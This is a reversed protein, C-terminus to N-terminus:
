RVKEFWVGAGPVLFGSVAGDEDREFRLEVLPFVTRFVDPEWPRIDFAEPGPYSLLVRGGELRLSYVVELEQSYYSGSFAALDEESPDYPTMRRYVMGDGWTVRDVKGEADRHFVLREGRAEDTFTSDSLPFLALRYPESWWPDVKVSLGNGERTFVVKLGPGEAGYYGAYVDLFGSEVDIPQPEQPVQPEAELAEGPEPEPAEGPEPEMAERPELDEEHLDGFEAGLLLHHFRNNTIWAIGTDVDPCYRFSAFHQGDEGSHGFCRPGVELGLGYNITDGNLLVGHETMRSMVAPGGVGPDHLNRLWGTLDDITTYIGTAGYFSDLEAGEEWGSTSPVGAYGMASNQIIEGSRTKVTTHEMGLAQFVNEEMWEGFPVGTVCEIVEALLIYSTNTYNMQAGPPHQPERQRQVVDMLQERTWKGPVKGQMSLMRYAERFGGTHNLLHRLTVPQAFDSLGPLYSRVDDELSLRGDDELLAVAFATFSKSVSGINSATETTFPIDYTLNALGFAGAYTVDGGRVVAIAGGPRDERDLFSVWQHLREEITTATPEIKDLRISYRGAAELAPRLEIRYRGSVTSEFHIWEWFRGWDDVRQVEEEDPGYVTVTINLTKQDVEAFVVQDAVLDVFFTHKEGPALERELTEGVQLETADQPSAPLAVSSIMVVSFVFARIM